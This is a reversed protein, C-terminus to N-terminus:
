FRRRLRTGFVVVILVVLFCFLVVFRVVRVRRQENKPVSLGHLASPHMHGIQDHPNRGHVGARLGEVAVM